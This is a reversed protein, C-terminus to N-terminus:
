KYIYWRGEEEPRYASILFIINQCIMVNTRNIFLRWKMYKYIHLFSRWAFKTTHLLNRRWTIYSAM